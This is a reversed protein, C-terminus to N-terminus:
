EYIRIVWVLVAPMATPREGARIAPPQDLLEEGPVQPSFGPWRYGTLALAL